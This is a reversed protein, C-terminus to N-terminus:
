DSRRRLWQILLSRSSLTEWDTKRRMLFVAGVFLLLRIFVGQFSLVRGLFFIWFLNTGTAALLVVGGTALPAAQFDKLFISLWEGAKKKVRCFPGKEFFPRLGRRVWGMVCSEKLVENM